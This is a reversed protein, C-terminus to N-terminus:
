EVVEWYAETLLKVTEEMEQQNLHTFGLRLATLKRNQYLCIGPLLLGKERSKEQLHALSFFDKFRVWFALGSSPITFTIQNKFHMNLLEAFIQKKEGIVKKSKRQYRHIDGQHIIEGLAKQMMLDPKGFINLYKAGERLLDKPAILFNMQFGPNLFRGFAGVYIIRNGGNKRFLSDKKNKVLSFEFDSDDEIVIFDYQEALDLLQTKRNESLSVTTPYQCKTNIYVFRIEGAKFNNQIYDIDMGDEDVPIAKMKAGAQGFIMNPLFYSLEEVLVIDGTNILLRSLISFVQELGAVPLL